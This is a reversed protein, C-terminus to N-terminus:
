RSGGPGGPEPVPPAARTPLHPLVGRQGIGTARQHAPRASRRRHRALEDGRPDPLQRPLLSESPKARPARGAQEQAQRRRSDHHREREPGLPVLRHRLLRRAVHLPRPLRVGAPVQHDGPGPGSGRELQPVGRFRPSGPALHGAIGAQPLERHPAAGVPARPRRRAIGERHGAVVARDHEVIRLEELGDLPEPHGGGRGEPQGPARIALGHHDPPAGPREDLHRPVPPDQPGPLAVRPQDALDGPDPAHEGRDGVVSAQEGPVGLPRPERELHTPLQSAQRHAGIPLHERGQVGVGPQPEPTPVPGGEGLERRHIPRDVLEGEGPAPDHPDARAPLHQQDVGRVTERLAPDDQVDGHM